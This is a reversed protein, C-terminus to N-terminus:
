YFLSEEFGSIRLHTLSQQTLLQCWDSERTFRELCLWSVERIGRDDYLESPWMAWKRECRLRIFERVTRYMLIEVNRAHTFSHKRRFSAKRLSLPLNERIQQALIFAEQPRRFFVRTPYSDNPPTWSLKTAWPFSELIKRQKERIREPLSSTTFSNTSSTGLISSDSGVQVDSSRM